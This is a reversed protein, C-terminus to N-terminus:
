LYLLGCDARRVCRVLVLPINMFVAEIELHGDAFDSEAVITDAALLLKSYLAYDALYGVVIVNSCRTKLLSHITERSKSAAKPDDTLGPHANYFADLFLVFTRDKYKETVAMIANLFHSEPSRARVAADSCSQSCAIVIYNSPPMATSMSSSSPNSPDTLLRQAAALQKPSYSLSGLADVLSTGSVVVRSAQRVGGAAVSAACSPTACFVMRAYPLIDRHYAEADYTPISGPGAAGPAGPSVSRPPAPHTIYFVPIDLAQAVIAGSLASVSNGVVVVAHPLATMALFHHYLHHTVEAQVSTDYKIYDMNIAVFDRIRLDKLTSKISINNGPSEVVIAAGYLQRPHASM